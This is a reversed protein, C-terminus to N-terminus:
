LSIKPQCFASASILWATGILQKGGAPQRDAAHEGLTRCLREREPQKVEIDLVDIRGHLTHFDTSPLDRFTRKFQGAAVPDGSAGVGLAGRERQLSLSTM